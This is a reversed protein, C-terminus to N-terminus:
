PGIVKFVKGYFIKGAAKAGKLGDSKFFQSVKGEDYEITKTIIGDSLRLRHGTVKYLPSIIHKRIEAGHELGAAFGGGALIILVCGQSLTKQIHM